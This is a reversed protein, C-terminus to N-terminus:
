KDQNLDYLTNNDNLSYESAISQLTESDTTTIDNSTGRKMIVIANMLLLAMLVTFAYVPRLIWSKKTHPEGATAGREQRALMSAKLRTYFFAPMAAKQSGDLSKLIEEIKKHRENIM